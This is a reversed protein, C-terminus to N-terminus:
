MSLTLRSWSVSANIQGRHPPLIQIQIEAFFDKSVLIASTHLQRAFSDFNSTEVFRPLVTRAKLKCLTAELVEVSGKYQVSTTLEAVDNVVVSVADVDSIYISDGRKDWCIWKRAEDDQLM